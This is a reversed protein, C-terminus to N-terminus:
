RGAGDQPTLETLRAVPLAARLDAVAAVIDKSEVLDLALAQGRTRALAAVLDRAADVGVKVIAHRLGDRWRDIDDLLADVAPSRLERLERELTAVQHDFAFSRSRRAILAADYARTRAVWEDYAAKATAGLEDVTAQLTRLEREEERRVAALARQKERRKTTREKEFEASLQQGAPTRLLQDMTPTSSM